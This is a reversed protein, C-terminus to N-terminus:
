RSTNGPVKAPLSFQSVTTIENCHDVKKEDDIIVKKRHKDRKNAQLDITEKEVSETRSLNAYLLVMEGPTLRGVKNKLTTARQGSTSVHSRVSISLSEKM